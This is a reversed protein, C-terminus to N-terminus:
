GSTGGANVRRAYLAIQLRYDAGGTELQMGAPPGASSPLHPGFDATVFERCRPWWGDCQMATCANHMKNAHQPVLSMRYVAGAVHTRSTGAPEALRDHYALRAARRSLMASPSMMRASGRCTPAKKMLISRLHLERGGGQRQKRGWAEGLLLPADHTRGPRSGM